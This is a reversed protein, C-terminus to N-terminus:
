DLGKPLLVTGGTIYALFDPVVLCRRADYGEERGQVLERLSPVGSPEPPPREPVMCACLIALRVTAEAYRAKIHDMVAKASGGSKIQADVVLVSRIERPDIDCLKGDFDSRQAPLSYKYDRRGGVVVAATTVVAGVPCFRDSLQAHILAAAMLGASNIGVILNPGFRPRRESVQQALREIGAGVTEWSVGTPHGTCIMGVRLDQSLGGGLLSRATITGTVPDSALRGIADCFVHLAGSADDLVVVGKHLHTTFKQRYHLPGICSPVMPDPVDQHCYILLKKGRDHAMQAESHIWPPVGGDRLLLVIIVLDAKSIGDRVNDEIVGSKPERQLDIYEIGHRKVCPEIVHKLADWVKSERDAYGRSVFATRM